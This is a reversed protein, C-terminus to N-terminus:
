PPSIIQEEERLQTYMDLFIEQEGRFMFPPAPQRLHWLQNQTTTWAQWAAPDGDTRLADKVDDGPRNSKNTILREERETPSYWGPGKTELQSKLLRWQPDSIAGCARSMMYSTFTMALLKAYITLVWMSVDPWVMPLAYVGAYWDDFSLDNPLFVSLQLKEARTIGGPPLAKTELCGLLSM